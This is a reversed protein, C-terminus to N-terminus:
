KFIAVKSDTDGDLFLQFNRPSAELAALSRETITVDEFSEDIVTKEGDPTKLTLNIKISITKSM